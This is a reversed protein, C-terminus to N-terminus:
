CSCFGLWALISDMSAPKSRVRAMAVLDPKRAPAALWSGRAPMRKRETSVKTVMKKMWQAVGPPEAQDLSLNWLRLGIGPGLPKGRMPLMLRM